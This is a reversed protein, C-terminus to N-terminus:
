VDAPTDNVWETDVVNKCRKLKDLRQQTKELLKEDSAILFDLLQTAGKKKGWKKPFQLRHGMPLYTERYIRKYLDQTVVVYYEGQDNEWVEASLHYDKNIAVQEGM